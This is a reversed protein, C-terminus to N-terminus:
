FRGGLGLGMMVGDTIPIVRLASADGPDDLMDMLVLAGGTVAVAGGVGLLVYSAIKRPEVEDDWAADYDGVSEWARGGLDDAKTLAAVWTVAGALTVAGGAGLTIWKWAPVGEGHSPTAPARGAKPAVLSSAELTAEPALAVTVLAEAKPGGHVSVQEPEYGDRAIVVEVARAGFWWDFPTELVHERGRITMTARALDPSSVIRVRAHAKSLEEELFSMADRVEVLRTADLRTAWALYGWAEAQRDLRGYAMGLNVLIDVRQPGVSQALAQHYLRLGGVADGAEFRALAQNALSGADPPAASLASPSLLLTMLVLTLLPRLM